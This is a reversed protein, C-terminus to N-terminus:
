RPPTKKQLQNRALRNLVIEATEEIAKDSVDIIPCGIKRFLDEAFALEELIRELKTYSSSSKIGMASMRTQRIENLREPSNTLGIIRGTEVKFLEDPVPSGLVLPLNSVLLNRNALYMSLPTKSTRSVGILVIDSQLFGRPDKGDDYKVAFEIAAIRQFYTEDMRRMRGPIPEPEQDTFTRIRETVSTLLDIYDIGAQTCSTIVHRVLAPDVLTFLVLTQPCTAAEALIANVSEPSHVYPFRRLECTLRPFQSLSARAMQEGTEGISDSIIFVVLPPCEDLQRDSGVPM